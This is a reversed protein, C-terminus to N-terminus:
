RRSRASRARAACAEAQRPQPPAREARDAGGVVLHAVREGAAVVDGVVHLRQRVLHLARQRRDAARGLQQLLGIGSASRARKTALMTRSVCRMWSSTSRMISSVASSDRRLARVRRRRHRQAGSSSSSAALARPRRRPARRARDLHQAPSSAPRAFAVREQQAARDGVQEVVRDVERRRACADRMASAGRPRM